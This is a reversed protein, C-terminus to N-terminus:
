AAVQAPMPVPAAAAFAGPLLRLVEAPLATLITHRLPGPTGAHAMYWGLHKRATVAGLDTGYFSLMAQYHEAVLAARMAGQPALPVPQGALAARIQGLLWPQGRAARGIMVGAGGSAALAARAAAVGDIDGNAIVPVPVAHRIPAIAAWDAQGTYFQCRTRGHIVVRTVGADAARRAVDAANLMAGDWGLRTKLTVPVAVAATVAAILRLAHDPDRLLASGSLGNTVRKAPCGMNIDIQSAGMAEAMRAAEAMWQAERGALQIATAPQGFGLEAKARAIPRARVMDQSAVMESVVWSAGYRLAITRFPLDTIGAMPALAVPWAVGTENLDPPLEPM